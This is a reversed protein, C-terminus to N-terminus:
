LISRSMLKLSNVNEQSNKVVEQLCTILGKINDDLKYITDMQEQVLPRKDRSYTSLESKVIPKLLSLRTRWVRADAIVWTLQQTHQSHRCIESNMVGVDVLKDWDPFALSKDKAKTMYVKIRTNTKEIIDDLDIM